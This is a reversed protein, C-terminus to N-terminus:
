IFYLNYIRTYTGDNELQLLVKNMRNILSINKPMAMIGFGKGILISSGIVKLDNTNKTQWYGISKRDVFMADIKKNKLALLLDDILKFQTIRFLESFYDNIFEDLDSGSIVGVQKTELENVQKIKSNRSVVFEGYSAMYPLSFVFYHLREDSITIAGIAVDIEGNRLAREILGFDMTKLICKENLRVCINNILQIDFGQTPNIVYPPRYTPVGVIINAHSLEYSLSCLLLLVTSSWKM